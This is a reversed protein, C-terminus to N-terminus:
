VPLVRSEEKEQSVLHALPALLALREMKELLVEKVWCEQLDKNEQREQTATSARPARGAWSEQQDGTELPGQPARVATKM